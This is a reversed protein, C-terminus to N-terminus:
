SKILKKPASTRVYRNWELKGVSGFNILLGVRLNTAKLYNLIQAEEVGSLHNLAKLEVIIQNYCILDAIYEKKLQRGKYRVTLSAQPQFPISRATLEMELAEQYIAVLFGSGLESHVEMAAGVIAYVEDKLTLM